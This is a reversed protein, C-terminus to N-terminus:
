TEFKKEDQKGTEGCGHTEWPDSSIVLNKASSSSAPVHSSLNMATSRSKAVVREEKQEQVRKAM